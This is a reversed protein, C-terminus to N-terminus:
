FMLNVFLAHMIMTIHSYVSAMGLCHYVIIYCLPRFVFGKTNAHESNDRMNHLTLYHWCRWAYRHVSMCMM